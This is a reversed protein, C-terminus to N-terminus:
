PAAAVTVAGARLEGSLQPRGAQPEREYREKLPAQITRLEDRNV